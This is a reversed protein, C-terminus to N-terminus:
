AWIVLVAGMVAVVWAALMSLVVRLLGGTDTTGGAVPGLTGPAQASASVGGAQSAPMREIEWEHRDRSFDKIAEFVEHM